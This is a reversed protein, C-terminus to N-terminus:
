FLKILANFPKNFSSLPLGIISIVAVEKQVSIKSVDQSKIDFEFEKELAIVAQNAKNADIVLGIGRESSGQSIISVSIDFVSLAKFIRADIGAKGLLGRGELNILAVQDLVSLSTVQNKSQKATILTGTDKPNFTNLIRLNINKEILPIITKAHLINAGFNALENAEAYSLETIKKADQVIDPNATYIGNVHTYNQLEEADLYNAVKSDKFSIKEIIQSGYIRKLQDYGKSGVTIIQLSKGESKIKEFFNVKKIATPFGRKCVCRLRWSATM